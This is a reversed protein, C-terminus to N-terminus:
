KDKSTGSVFVILITTYTAGALVLEMSRSKTLVALILLYVVTSTMVIFIRAMFDGVLNCIVVPLFLLLTILCLFLAKATMKAIPGSYDFIKVHQSADDLSKKRWVSSVDILRDEVLTEIAALANDALPALAVLEGKYSLYQTEEEAICATADSWNRLIEIDRPKALSLGLWRQTREAFRDYDALCAEIDSLITARQINRDSRSKAHFLICPEQDDLIELQEELLTLKDQKLLLLRARLKDFRRCVFYPGYTSIFATFRPYGVKYEDVKKHPRAPTVTSTM